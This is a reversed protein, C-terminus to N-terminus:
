YAQVDTPLNKHSVAKLATKLDLKGSVANMGDRV